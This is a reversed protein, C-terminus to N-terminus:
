DAKMDGNYILDCHSSEQKISAKVFVMMRRQQNAPLEWSIRFFILPVAIYQKILPGIWEYRKCLPGPNMDSKRSKEKFEGGREESERQTEQQRRIHECVVAVNKM